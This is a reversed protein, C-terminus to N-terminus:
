SCSWHDVHTLIWLLFTSTTGEAVFANGPGALFDVKRITETGCAMAAVAQVGGLVFIEDAGAYYMAAITAHPLEGNIPPTCAIVNPCGAVKATLITMHASALLPYRGGPIYRCCAKSDAFTLQSPALRVVVCAGVTEIPINKQGLHVGPSIEIEFDKISSLQAEAFTRVAKQVEKIDDLTQKPVQALVDDIEAQSLKFSKPSWKDFKESYKRVAVDGSHRIESIVGSVISAVDVAPGAGNAVPKPVAAPSKLHLAPRSASTVM